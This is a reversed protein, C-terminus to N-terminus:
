ERICKKESNVFASKTAVEPYALIRAAYNVV